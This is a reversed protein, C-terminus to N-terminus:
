VMGQLYGAIGCEEELSHVLRLIGYDPGDEHSPNLIYRVNILYIMKVQILFGATMYPIKMM